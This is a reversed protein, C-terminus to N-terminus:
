VNVCCQLARWENIDLARAASMVAQSQIPSPSSMELENNIAPGITDRGRHSGVEKMSYQPRHLLLHPRSRSRTCSLADRPNM